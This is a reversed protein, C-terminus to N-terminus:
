RHLHVDGLRGSAVNQSAPTVSKTIAWTWNRNYATTATKSVVLDKYVFKNTYTCTITQGSVVTLPPRRATSWM